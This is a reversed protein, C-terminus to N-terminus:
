AMFYNVSNKVTFGTDPLVVDGPLLKQLGGLDEIVFVDSSSGGYDKSIFIITSQPFIGILFKVTNDNKYQVM